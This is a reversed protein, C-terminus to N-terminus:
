DDILFIAFLSVFSEFSYIAFILPQKFGLRQVVLTNFAQSKNFRIIGDIMIM